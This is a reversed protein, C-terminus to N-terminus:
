VTWQGPGGGSMDIVAVSAGSSNTVLAYRGDPTIAVDQPFDINDTLIAAVQISPVLITQSVSSAGDEGQVTLEIHSGCGLTITQSGAPIHATNLFQQTEPDTPPPDISFTVPTSGGGDDTDWDLAVQQPGSTINMLSPSVTFRNIVPT